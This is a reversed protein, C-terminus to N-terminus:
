ITTASMRVIVFVRAKERASLNEWADLMAVRARSVPPSARLRAPFMNPRTNLRQAEKGM